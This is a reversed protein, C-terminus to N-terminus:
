ELVLYKGERFFTRREPRKRRRSGIYENELFKGRKLVKGRDGFKRKWVRKKEFIEEERVRVM